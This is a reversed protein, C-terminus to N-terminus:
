IVLKIFLHYSSLRGQSALLILVSEGSNISGSPVNSHKCYGSAPDKWSYSWDTGHERVM